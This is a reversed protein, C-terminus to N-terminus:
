EVTTGTRGTRERVGPHSVTAGGWRIQKPGLQGATIRVCRIDIKVKRLMTMLM